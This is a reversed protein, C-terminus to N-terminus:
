EGNLRKNIRDIAAMAGDVVACAVETQHTIRMTKTKFWAALEAREATTLMLMQDAFAMAAARTANPVDEPPVVGQHGALVRRGIEANLEDDKM